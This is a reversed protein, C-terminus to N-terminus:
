LRAPTIRELSQCLDYHSTENIKLICALWSHFYHQTAHKQSFALFSMNVREGMYVSESVEAASPKKFVYHCFYFNSLVLLKEKQCLTKESKTM